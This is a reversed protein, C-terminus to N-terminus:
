GTPVQASRTAMPVATMAPWRMPLKLATPTVVSMSSKQEGHPIHLCNRRSNKFSSVGMKMNLLSPLHITLVMPSSSGSLKPGSTSGGRSSNLFFWSSSLAFVAHLMDDESTNTYERTILVLHYILYSLNRFGTIHIEFKQKNRAKYQFCIWELRRLVYSGHGKGQGAAAVM